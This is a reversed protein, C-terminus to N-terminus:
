NIIFSADVPMHDSLDVKDRKWQYELNPVSTNFYSINKKPAYLMILDLLYQKENKKFAPSPWTNETPMKQPYNINYLDRLSWNDFPAGAEMNWDGAFLITKNQNDYPKVLENLIQLSQSERVATQNVGDASQMHTVIFHIEELGELVFLIAGKKSHGEMSATAKFVIEKMKHLPKKSLIWLGNPMRFSLKKNWKLQFPYQKELGKAVIRRFGKHYAEQFCIVDYNGNKLIEVIGKARKKQGIFMPIAPLMYTNWSLIKFEDAQSTQGFIIAYSFFSILTLVIIRM